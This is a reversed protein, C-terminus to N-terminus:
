KRPTPPYSYPKSIKGIRATWLVVKDTALIKQIKKISELSKTKDKLKHNSYDDYLPLSLLNMPQYSYGQEQLYVWDRIIHTVDQDFDQDYYFIFTSNKYFKKIQYYVYLFMPTKFLLAALKSIYKVMYMAPLDHFAIHIEKYFIGDQNKKYSNMSLHVWKFFHKLVDPDSWFRKESAKFFVKLEDSMESPYIIKSIGTNKIDKDTLKVFDDYYRRDTRRLYFPHSSYDIRQPETIFTLIYSFNDISEFKYKFSMVESAEKIYENLFVLSIRDVSHARNYPHYGRKYSYHFYVTNNEIRMEWPQANDGTPFRKIFTLAHDINNM